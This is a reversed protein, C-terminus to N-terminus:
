KNLRDRLEMNILEKSHEIELNSEEVSKNYIMESIKGIIINKEYKNLHRFADLLEAEEKPLNLMDNENRNTILNKQKEIEDNGLLLYDTSVNFYQAIKVLKDYSPNKIRGNKWDTLFSTNIGCQKLCEKETVGKKKILFLITELVNNSM